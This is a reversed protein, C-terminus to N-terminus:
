AKHSDLISTFLFGDYDEPSLQRHLYVIDRTEDPTWVDLFGGRQGDKQQSQNMRYTEEYNYICRHYAKVLQAGKIKLAKEVTNLLVEIKKVV